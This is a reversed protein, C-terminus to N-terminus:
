GLIRKPDVTSADNTLSLTNGSLSLDQADTNDLYGALSVNNGDEIALTNGTLSITQDDSGILGSLDASLTGGADTVQLNNGVLAVTTNLENTASLDGDATEHDVLDSAVTAIAASEELASLDAVSATGDEINITLNSGTLTAAGMNQDDTNLYGSLDVSSADGTLALTNGSLTLDQADTNDLYYIGTQDTWYTLM